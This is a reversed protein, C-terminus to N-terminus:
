RDVFFRNMEKACHKMIFSEFPRCVLLYSKLFTLGVFALWALIIHLASFRTNLLIRVLGFWLPACSVQPFCVHGNDLTLGGFPRQAMVAWYPKLFLSTYLGIQHGSWRWGPGRRWTVLWSPALGRCGLLEPASWPASTWVGRGAPVWDCLDNVDLSEERELFYFFFESSTIVKKWISNFYLTCADLQVHFDVAWQCEVLLVCRPDLFLVCWWSKWFTRERAM